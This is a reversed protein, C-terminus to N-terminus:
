LIGAADRGESQSLRLVEAGVSNRESFIAEVSSRHQETAFHLDKRIM